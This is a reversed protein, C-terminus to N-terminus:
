HPLADVCSVSTWSVLSRCIRCHREYILGVLVCRIRDHIVVHVIRDGVGVRVYRIRDQITSM